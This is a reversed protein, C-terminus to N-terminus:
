VVASELVEIGGKNTDLRAKLGWPLTVKKRIHGYQYDTVVPCTTLQTVEGIVQEITLHPKEPEGPLCDVFKGFVLAALNRLIGAHAFQALMRDVRHPAEDVDELVLISKRLDPLLPTGMLSAVLAFCGGLLKGTGKGARLIGVPEDVPNRLWGIKKASTLQRWFHEETYPDIGSAMEVGSMPGSFTVLGTRRFIALQLATLDSYGVLIKPDRRLAAYDVMSLIRPTGYGGRIAIIARVSKDRVMENLDAAREEDTGALYGYQRMVNRGVRVRYGLRELYRVGGEVKESTVPATAPAILGIVDGSRLRSPKRIQM